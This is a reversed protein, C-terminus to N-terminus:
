VYIVGTWGRGNAWAKWAETDAYLDPADECEGPYSCGSGDCHATFCHWNESTAVPEGDICAKRCDECRDAPLGMMTVGCCACEVYGIIESMIEVRESGV